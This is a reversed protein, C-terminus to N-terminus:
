VNQLTKERLNKANEFFDKAQEFFELAFSESPENKNISLALNKFGGKVEIYGSEVFHKDFDVMIGYQTNCQVEKTLLLAKATQILVNYCHYIGDAWIGQEFAEQAKTLREPQESLVLGVMDTIVGACEGVGVATEYKHEEGWDIMFDQTLENIVSLPKLLQYFYNKGQRTFYANFYEGEQANEDYDNLLLRLADPIRKSALKIVKEAILGKGDGIIGGGLMVQHAPLVNEGVKLSMGHFGINAVSHQGCANMCGSIKIKIDNNTILDAYEEKLLRELEIALGMSSAIGLN